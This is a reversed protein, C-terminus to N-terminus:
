KRYKELIFLITMEIIKGMGNQKDTLPPLSFSLNAPNISCAGTQTWDIPGGKRHEREERYSWKKTRKLGGTKLERGKLVWYDLNLIAIRGPRAKPATPAAM